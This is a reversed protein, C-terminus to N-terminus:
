ESCGGPVVGDWGWQSCAGCESHVISYHISQGLIHECRGKFGVMVTEPGMEPSPCAIAARRHRSLSVSSMSRNLLPYPLAM